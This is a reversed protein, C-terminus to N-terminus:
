IGYAVRPFLVKSSLIGENTANQMCKVPGIRRHQELLEGSCLDHQFSLSSNNNIGISMVVLYVARM